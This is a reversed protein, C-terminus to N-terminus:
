YITRSLAPGGRAAEAVLAKLAATINTAVAAWDGGAPQRFLRATPYWPSDDRGLLWRWDPVYSLLLWVKKGLAGALHGVSTDVSIVLDLAAVAAATDAFDTIRPSLDVLPLPAGALQEAAPGKQLSYFVVGPVDALPALAALPLSRLRDRNHEPRGAWVLGVRLGDGGPHPLAAAAPVRIYPVAAPITGLETKFALPLSLLSCHSTFEPLADGCAVVTETGPMGALLRRLEAPVELIVRGGCAAVLPAYRVFQLVDGFGQEAYLLIPEGRLPEGRWEPQAFRRPGPAPWRWERWGASYDGLLLHVLGLNRHAEVQDPAQALASDYCALATQPDGLELIANGLNIRPAVYGPDLRIAHEFLAAAAAFDGRRAHVNGLNNRTVASGPDLRLAAEYCAAAEDLRGDEALMLGLNAHAEAYEPRLALAARYCGAAAKGEGQAALANGLHFQAEAYDPRADLARRQCAAAEAFRGAAHYARGLDHQHEAAAGDAAVAKELWKLAAAADGLGFGIVGLLHQAAPDNPTEGLVQRCLAAAEFLRGNRHHDCAQAFATEASM